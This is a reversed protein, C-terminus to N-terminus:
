EERDVSPVRHLDRGSAAARRRYRVGEPRAAVAKENRRRAALYARIESAALM